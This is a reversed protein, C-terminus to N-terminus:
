FAKNEDPGETGPTKPRPLPPPTDPIVLPPIPEPPEVIEDPTIVPTISTIEANWFTTFQSNQGSAVLNETAPKGNVLFIIQGGVEHEYFAEM